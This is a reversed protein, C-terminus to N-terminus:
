SAEKQQWRRLHAYRAHVADIRDIYESISWPRRGGARRGWETDVAVLEDEELDALPRTPTAM